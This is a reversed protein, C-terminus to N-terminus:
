CSALQLHPQVWLAVDDLGFHSPSSGPGFLNTLSSIFPNSHGAVTEFGIQVSRGVFASLDFSQQIWVGTPGVVAQHSNRVLGSAPVYTDLAKIYNGSADWLLVSLGDDYPTGSASLAPQIFFWFSLTAGYGTNPISVLQSAEQPFSPHYPQGGFPNPLTQWGEAQTMDLYQQGCHQKGSATTPSDMLRWATTGQEFGGNQIIQSPMSSVSLTPSPSSPTPLSQAAASGVASQALVAALSGVVVLRALLPRANLANLANLM